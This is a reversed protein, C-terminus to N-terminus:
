REKVAEAFARCKLLSRVTEFEMRNIATTPSLKDRIYIKNGNQRQEDILQCLRNIDTIPAGQHYKANM